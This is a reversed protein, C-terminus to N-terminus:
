SDSSKKQLPLEAVVLGFIGFLCSSFPSTLLISVLWKPVFSETPRVLDGTANSQVPDYRNIMSEVVVMWFTLQRVRIFSLCCSLCIKSVSLCLIVRLELYRCVLM